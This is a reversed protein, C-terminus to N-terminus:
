DQVKRIHRAACDHFYLEQHAGDYERNPVKEGCYNEVGNAVNMPTRHWMQEDDDNWGTGMHQKGESSEVHDHKFNFNHGVEHLIAALCHHQDTAGSEHPSDWLQTIHKGPGTCANGGVYACGGGSSNLILLNSDAENDYGSNGLMENWLSVPNDGGCVARQSPVNVPEFGYTVKYNIDARDLAYAIQKAATEDPVRGNRDLLERSLYVNVHLKYTEYRDSELVLPKEDLEYGPTPIDSYASVNSEDLFWLIKRLVDILKEIDIKM